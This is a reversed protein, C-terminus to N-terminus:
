LVSRWYDLMDQITQEIPIDQSWGTDKILKSSDGIIIPEDTPRLLKPDQVIKPKVSIKSLIIDLIDSILYAKSGSLNYVDGFNGKQTLLWFAKIIDRVDTIARRTNLNGVKIVDTMGKEAMVAQKTFDSCVDNVKRPGTTNFIRARLSRIGFNKHYQYAILDTAVKSVGYPHLPLLSHTEKVPVEDETVLGYEASSCAALIIPNIKLSKVSEFINLTGEINTQVTYIPDDWSVTPYSQAGLHFIIDPNFEAIISRVKEKDRLDCEKIEIKSKLSEIETTPNYYTGFVKVGKSLLLDVLHPGMFGGVGTIYAKM